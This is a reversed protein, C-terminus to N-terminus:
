ARGDRPVLRSVDWAREPEGGQKPGLRVHEAWHEKHVYGMETAASGRGRGVEEEAVIQGHQRHTAPSM